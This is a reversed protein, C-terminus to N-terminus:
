KSDTAQVPGHLILVRDNDDGSPGILNSLAQAKDKRIVHILAM